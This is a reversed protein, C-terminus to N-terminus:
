GRGDGRARQWDAFSQEKAALEVILPAPTWYLEGQASAYRRIAALVNPLGWTDAYFMPGGRFRPYGYGNCWIADIDGPSAAIGEGLIAAGENILGLMCREVIEEDTFARQTVGLRQAEAAIMADVEPDEVPDRSGPPYLFTGKGTKQGLRGAEVLLDFVRFYRPDPPLDTRERRVRYGIDLGALDGVANPGMAMGFHKLVRDIRMPGAGELVMLQSERGYGYLMRNGVFGFCNGVVIGLKGMRKTVALATALAEPSSARGRVIEVLRMINAPSFFHMGVVDAPRQTAAAIRDVDLTSTNTALVAGPRCIADLRGFVEQKVAMSEFVAEIVLEANAAVAFDSSGAVRAIAAAGAEASLRGKQVSGEITDKVRKLGAAVAEAKTDVLSVAYGATALSIAIGSGMTGAGLVCVREVRCPEGAVKSGREAFFLHRLARSSTSTRCEEFLVRSRALAAAFPQTVVAEVCDVIRPPSDLGRQKKAVQARQEAFYEADAGQAELPRECLRRPGQGAAVLERAYALGAALVDGDVIRDLIGLEQAKAAPIPEGSLMMELALKPGVIRPLRVPAGSGPLLGLKVEPLGLKTDQAAIRYHSALAVEFGGGLAMGHLAAIVPKACAELRLLTDNLLPAQPPADFERIDAGGVFLKGAAHIVIAKVATDADAVEIAAFLAARVPQALANIPPHEITFVAIEGDIRSHVTATM